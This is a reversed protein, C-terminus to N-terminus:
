LRPLKSLDRYHEVIALWEKVLKEKEQRLKLTIKKLKKSCNKKPLKAKNKM